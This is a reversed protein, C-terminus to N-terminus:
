RADAKEPSYQFHERLILSLGLETLVSSPLVLGACVAVYVCSM